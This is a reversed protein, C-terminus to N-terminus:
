IEGGGTFDRPGEARYEYMWSMGAEKGKLHFYGWMLTEKMLMQMHGTSAKRIDGGRGTFERVKEIRTKRENQWTVLDDRLGLNVAVQPLHSPQSLKTFVSALTASDEFAMSAGQGGTPPMAHAADGALIMHGSESIWTPLIPANYYPWLNLSAPDATHCANKVVDPWNSASELSCHRDIMMQKLKPKDASLAVWEERSRDPLEVTASFSVTGADPTTPMFMFSNSSGLVLAPLPMSHPINTSRSVQGGGIGAQGSFVPMPADPFILTRTKSHIGDTAILYTSTASTSTQDPTTFTAIVQGPHPEHISTLKHEFHVEIGAQLVAHLLTQRVTHRSLRLCPYGYREVSGNLYSGIQSLNRASLLYYEEYACGQTLLYKHLGLQDLVYGANPALALFGGDSTDRSRSEFVTVHLNLRQLFLATSLGCLGAGIITIRPIKQESSSM